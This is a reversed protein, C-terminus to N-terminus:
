SPVEERVIECVMEHLMERILDELTPPLAAAPEERLTLRGILAFRDVCPRCWLEGVVKSPSSVYSDAADVHRLTIAVDWMQYATPQEHGCHDCKWTTTIM